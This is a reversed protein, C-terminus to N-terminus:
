IHALITPYMDLDSWFTTLCFLVQQKDACQVYPIVYSQVHALKCLAIIMEHLIQQTPM